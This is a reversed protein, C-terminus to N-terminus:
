EITTLDKDYAMARFILRDIYYVARNDFKAKPVYDAINDFRNTISLMVLTDLDESKISKLRPNMKLSFIIDKVLSMNPAHIVRVGKYFVDLSNILVTCKEVARIAVDSNGSVLLVTVPENHLFNTLVRQAEDPDTESLTLPLIM